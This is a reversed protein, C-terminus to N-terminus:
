ARKTVWVRSYTSSRPARLSVKVTVGSTAFPLSCTVALTGCPTASSKISLRVTPSNGHSPASGSPLTVNTARVLSAVLRGSSIVTVRSTVVGITSVSSGFVPLSSTVEAAASARM